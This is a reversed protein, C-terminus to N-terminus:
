RTLDLILGRGFVCERITEFIEDISEKCGNKLWLTVVATIGNLYYQMVYPRRVEPYGFHELIPDFVQEYMRRFVRDFGLTGINSLAASFVWRHDMMYSLYPHLYQETIFNLRGNDGSQLAATFEEDEQPFYARFKILLNRTTEELLDGVTEYHLYFTSRNVGATKCIESVTIYAFDKVELLAILAENMKVATNFYKSESRNM